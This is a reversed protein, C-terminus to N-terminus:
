HTKRSVKKRVPPLLKKCKRCFEADASNLSMCHPCYRFSERKKDIGKTILALGVIAIAIGIVYLPIFAATQRFFHADLRVVGVGVFAITAGIIWFKKDGRIYDKENEKDTVAPKGRNLPNSFLGDTYPLENQNSDEDETM